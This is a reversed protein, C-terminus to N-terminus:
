LEKVRFKSLKANDSSVNLHSTLSRVQVLLSSVKDFSELPTCLDYEDKKHEVIHTVKLEHLKSVVKELRSKPGVVFLKSMHEPKIM